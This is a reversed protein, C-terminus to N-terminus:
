YFLIEQTSRLIHLGAGGSGDQDEIIQQVVVFYLTSIEFQLSLLSWNPIKKLRGQVGKVDLSLM